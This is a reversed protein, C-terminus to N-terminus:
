YKDTDNGKKAIFIPRGTCSDRTDCYRRIQQHPNIVLSQPGQLCFSYMNLQIM